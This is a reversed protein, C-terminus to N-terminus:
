ALSREQNSATVQNFTTSVMIGDHNKALEEQSSHVDTWLLENSTLGLRTDRSRTKASGITNLQIEDGTREGSRSHPQKRYGHADYTSRKSRFHNFLVAYGPCCGIIVASVFKAFWKTKECIAIESTGIACEIMNWIGLWTPNITLRDTYAELAAVQAVRLTAIVICVVGSAFLVIIAVKKTRPMQLNWTLRIPLAM